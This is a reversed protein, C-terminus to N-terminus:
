AAVPQPREIHGRRIATYIAQTSVDLEAAVQRVTRGQLLLKTAKERDIKHTPMVQMRAIFVVTTLPVYLM